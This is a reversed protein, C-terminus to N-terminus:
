QIRFSRTYVQKAKVADGKTIDREFPRNLNNGALDELRSEIELVYEGTKWKKEPYFLLTTENKDPTFRGSINKGDKDVVRITNKLLQYDLSEKLHIVLDDRSNSFPTSFTWSQYGPSFSDREGVYFDKEFDEAVDNGKADRWKKRVLLRYSNDQELPAGMKQNPLLERKIRGPDLWVTLIRNDNSWLEPQLDLFVDPLTDKGNRILVLNELAHGEQMPETFEIYFKLLNEPLTDGSPYISQVYTQAPVDVQSINRTAILEGGLKVVYTLGNTFAIVPEFLVKDDRITLEGLVPISNGELHITLSRIISDDTANNFLDRSIQFAIPSTDKYVVFVDRFM